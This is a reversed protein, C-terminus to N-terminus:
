RTREDEIREDETEWLKLGQNNKLLNERRIRKIKSLVWYIKTKNKKTKRGKKRM